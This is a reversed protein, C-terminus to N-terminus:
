KILQKAVTDALNVQTTQLERLSIRLKDCLAMLEDVKKVIRKQEAIPPLPFAYLKVNNASLNPQASGNDFRLLQNKGFPSTLYKFIYKNLDLTYPRIIMLSSAISGEEYPEIFATKGFTAGRLCYVLDGKQIKGSRLSDYKDRTIYNMHTITLYGSSEIHGTNIWPVGEDVYESKNPYNKGRDGNIFESLIGFKVWLWKNPLDFLKEDDTIEPLVKQKKIKGEKILREKEEVIKEFLVSAPEDDPDQVVLKGMVALQLITEQLKDISKETTFLMDFHEAIRQWSQTFEEPKEVNTLTDLLTEVLTQHTASNEEQEGELKDCLTMLEDVKAVIRHQESLPPLPIVTAIIKERSINPQAGGVGMTTFRHKYAKLLMLLFTNAFDDFTTCACVAQNTTAPVELIATKGITAGYMAILVDGAKNYRLSSEKLALETVHEDAESIYDANLEGSKFWPIEGGYYKHNGRTPTAGAGWEGIDNLRVFEWHSPISFPKEKEEIDKLKKIKKIKKDAILQEREIVIKELLISAPEDSADQAVLKGQVALELILERLKKIGYVEQKKSSGRGASKKTVLASTWIDIHETIVDTM